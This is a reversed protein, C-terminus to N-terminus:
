DRKLKRTQSRCRFPFVREVVETLEKHDTEAPNILLRLKSVLFGARRHTEDIAQQADNGAWHWLTPVLSQFEAVTDRLANIPPTGNSTSFRSRLKRNDGGLQTRV